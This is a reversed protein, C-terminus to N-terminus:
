ALPILIVAEASIGETLTFDSIRTLLLALPKKLLRNIMKHHKFKLMLCSVHPFWIFKRFLVLFWPFHLSIYM